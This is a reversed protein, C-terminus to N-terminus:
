ELVPEEARVRHQAVADVHRGGLHVDDALRARVHDVVGLGVHAVGHATRRHELEEAAADVHAHARVGVGM